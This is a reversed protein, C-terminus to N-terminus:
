LYYGVHMDGRKLTVTTEGHVSTTAQVTVELPVTGLTDTVGDFVTQCLEEVLTQGKQLDLLLERLSTLELITDDDPEYAVLVVAKFSRGSYSCEFELPDEVYIIAMGDRTKFNLVRM